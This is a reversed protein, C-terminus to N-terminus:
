QSKLIKRGYSTPRHVISYRGQHVIPPTVELCRYGNFRPTIMGNLRMSRIIGKIKRQTKIGANPWVDRLAERIHTTSIQNPNAEMYGYVFARLKSTTTM